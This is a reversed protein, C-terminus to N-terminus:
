MDGSCHRPSATSPRESRNAAPVVSNSISAPRRAKAPRLTVSTLWRMWFSPSGSKGASSRAATGRRCSTSSREVPFCGASRKSLAAWIASASRWSNDLRLSSAVRTCAMTGLLSFYGGVTRTPADDRGGMGASGGDRGGAGGSGDDGGDVGGSVDDRGGVGGSIDDGGDIGGSADDRGGPEGSVDDRGGPKGM